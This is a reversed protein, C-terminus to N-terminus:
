MMMIMENVFGEMKREACPSLNNFYNDFSTKTENHHSRTSEVTVVPLLRFSEERKM